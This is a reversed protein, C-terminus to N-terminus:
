SIANRPVRFEFATKPEREFTTEAVVVVPDAGGGAGTGTADTVTEGELTLRCTPPVDCSVAVKRSAFLLTSVPLVTVHDLALTPM